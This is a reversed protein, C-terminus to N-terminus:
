KVADPTGIVLADFILTLKIKKIESVDRLRISISDQTKQSITTDFHIGNSTVFLEGMKKKDSLM